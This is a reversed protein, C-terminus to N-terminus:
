TTGQRWIKPLQVMQAQLPNPVFTFPPDLFRPEVFSRYHDKKVQPSLTEGPLQTYLNFCDYADPKGYIYANCESQASIWSAQAVICILIRITPVFELPFM